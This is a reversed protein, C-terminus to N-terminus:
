GQTHGLLISCMYGRCALLDESHLCLSPRKEEKRRLSVGFSLYCASFLAKRRSILPTPSFMGELVSDYSKLFL